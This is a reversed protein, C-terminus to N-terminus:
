CRQKKEIVRLKASRARRNQELEYESPVIPKRTVHVARPEKGCVCIPLERPCDCGATFEAFTRKVLRDELSHFTIVAFRGGIQLADFGARLGKSLNGLEDNVEIRIAQFTKRCPNKANRYSHPVNNRIIEALEGTTRLSAQRRAKVVARAISRAYKEEGYEYLVRVFESESYGNVVDYASIPTKTGMRMDLPSDEVHFSFGRDATDLQVSSVGADIVIGSAGIVDYNMMCSFNDNIFTVNHGELRKQAAIIASEDMDFCILRGLRGLKEAIAVSHGGGGTTCDVYLGAPDINLADVTERLLVTTHNFDM